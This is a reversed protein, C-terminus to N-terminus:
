KKWKLYDEEYDVDLKIKNLKYFITNEEFLLDHLKDIVSSKYCSFFMCHRFCKPYDQRRYLDHNVILEAKEEEKEYFCLYPHEKVEECCILSTGNKELYHNYIKTVDEWTRDPYTLFLLMIDEDDGINEVDRFHIMVDKLSSEDTSLDGPRHIINFNYLSAKDKIVDDDTSVYVNKRMEEPIIKATYDFLERNKFPFGKSGERAPILIKTNHM